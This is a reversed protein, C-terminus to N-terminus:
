GSLRLFYPSHLAAEPKTSRCGRQKKLGAVIMERARTLGTFLAENLLEDRMQLNFSEVFANQTLKGPTTYHWEIGVEGCHELVVNSTLETGNDSVIRGAQRTIRGVRQTRASSAQGLDFCRPDGGTM